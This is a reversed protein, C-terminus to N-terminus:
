KIQTSYFGSETILGDLFQDHNEYPIEDFIQLDFAVGLKVAKENLRHFFRDYCGGGYGLRHGQRDFALGPILLLDLDTPDIYRAFVPEEVKQRTIFTISKKKYVAAQMVGPEQGECVPVYLEKGSEWLPGFLYKINVEGQLPIYAMIRQADKYLPSELIMNSIAKSKEIFEAETLNLRTERMQKRLTSKEEM